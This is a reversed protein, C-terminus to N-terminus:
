FNCYECYFQFLYLDPNVESWDSELHGSSDNNIISMTIGVFACICAFLVDPRIAMIVYSNREWGERAGRPRRGDDDQEEAHHSKEEGWSSRVSQVVHFVVCVDAIHRSYGLLYQVVGEGPGWFVCVYICVWGKLFTPTLMMIRSSFRVGVYCSVVECICVNWM